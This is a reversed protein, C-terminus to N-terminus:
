LYILFNKYDRIVESVSLGSGLDYDGAYIIIKGNTIRTTLLRESIAQCAAITAGGFALNSLHPIGLDIKADKWLRLTSSGYLIVDQEKTQSIHNQIEVERVDTGIEEEVPSLLGVNTSLTQRKAFPMLNLEDALEIAEEVYSRFTKRYEKLFSEIEAESSIDAVM